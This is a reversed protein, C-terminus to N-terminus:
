SANDGVVIFIIMVTYATVLQYLAMANPGAELSHQILSGVTSMLVPLVTISDRSSFKRIAADGSSPSGFITSIEDVHPQLYFVGM